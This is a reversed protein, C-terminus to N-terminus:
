GRELFAVTEVHATQPFLDFARIRAVRYPGTGALRALDRALTAPDCSVYAVRGPPRAMIGALVEPGLGTRPPNVVALDARDLSPLAQEVRGAHRNVRLGLREQRHEAEEVARRDVEVSEVRAGRTALLDSTEGIGAYLDWVALGGPDGLGDVAFRRVLEGMAPNVQAFATAPFATEAGAVARAAGGAPKWWVTPGGSRGGLARWLEAARTWAESRASEVIVHGTQRQDLRLVLHDAGPPLLARHRSVELWLANIAPAAIECRALDFVRRPEDLPHFGIRRGDRGLRVKTRYEWESPAPELEPDEIALHGVRRLADGVIARRVTRQAESDLHQLQCGGCRDAVYHRCRPEVRAPGPAVISRIRGRVYRAHERVVEIELRDGPASRPVFAVRGDALRGVGDGGAAIRDITIATTSRSRGGASDTM